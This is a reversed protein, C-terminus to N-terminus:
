RERDGRVVLYSVAWQMPDGWDSDRFLVNHHEAGLTVGLGGLHHDSNGFVFEFGQLVLPEEAPIRPQNFPSTGSRSGERVVVDGPIWAYQLKVNYARMNGPTAAPASAAGAVIGGVPPLVLGGAAVWAATEAADRLDIGMDDILWVQAVRERPLMRIGLMRVNADAGAPRRFEFGTLVLRSGAPGAALDLNMRGSGAAAVTGTQGGSFVVWEATARFPDGGDRDAFAFDAFRDSALVAIHNIKHDDGPFLLEFSRLGAAPGPLRNAAVRAAGTAGNVSAPSRFWTTAPHASELNRLAPATIERAASNPGATPPLVAAVSWRCASIADSRSLGTQIRDRFCRITAQHDQTGACLAIGDRWGWASGSGHDIGRDMSMDFCRAPEQTDAAGACLRELNVESWNAHGSYDWPVNGQLTRACLTPDAAAVSALCLALASALARGGVIRVAWRTKGM